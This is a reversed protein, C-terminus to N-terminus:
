DHNRIPIGGKIMIQYYNYDSPVLALMRVITKNVSGENARYSLLLSRIKILNIVAFKLKPINEGLSALNFHQEDIGIQEALKKITSFATSLNITDIVKDEENEEDYPLSYDNGVTDLKDPLILEMNQEKFKGLLTIISAKSLNFKKNLKKVLFYNLLETFNSYFKKKVGSPISNWFSNESLRADLSKM